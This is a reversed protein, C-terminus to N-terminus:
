CAGVFVFWPTFGGQPDLVEFTTPNVVTHRAAGKTKAEWSRPSHHVMFISTNEQTDRKGLVEKCIHQSFPVIVLVGM